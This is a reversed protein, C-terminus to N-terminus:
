FMEPCWPAVPWSFLRDVVAVAAPDGRVRGARSLRSATAGGLYLSGLTDRDIELEPEREIRQCRGTGAEAVLEWVEGELAFTVAGDSAYRRTGLAAPIDDIRLWLTDVRRRHVRRPDDVMWPLADDIPANSWAVTPFLDVQLAFRWLTAEARSDVGILEIIEVRGSGLHAFGGRQRFALYGVPQDGRRALVHRRRSAGGRIYAAELFRRENWWVESRVLAGPRGATARAYIPPLARRAETEDLWVVEDLAGPPNLALQHAGEIEVGDAEAAIGYGFRGYIRAESAWLGSIPIRRTRAEELHLGMLRRLLGRRRHTPRVTVVTLGAMPVLGGPVFISLDYTAATAVVHGADFAAWTRSPDLLRSLRADGGPDEDVEGGFVTVVAERFRGLEGATIPRVEITM